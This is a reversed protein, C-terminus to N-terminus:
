CGGGLAAPVPLGEAAKNRATHLLLDTDGIGAWGLMYGLLSTRGPVGTCFGDGRARELVRAQYEYARDWLGPDGLLRAAALLSQVVGGSGHCVSLDVPGEEPLRVAADAAGAPWRGPPGERGASSLIEASALLLGAAGGCWGAARPGGAAGERAAGATRAALWDASARVLAADGLVRGARSLAWRLGLEGHALDWWPRGRPVELSQEVLEALVPLWAGGHAAPTGDAEARALLVMLPGAPGSVLDAGRVTGDGAPAGAGAAARAAVAALLEELWDPDTRGDRTLLLSATGSFVSPADQALTEGYVALLSDLGRGASRHAERLGRDYRAARGLFAVTGGTDRFSVFNGPALTPAAGGPGVGGLWGTEPGDPGGATVGLDRILRAVTRWWDGPAARALSRGGFVSHTSLGAPEHEGTLEGFTEELLFRHHLDARAASIAIGSRAFDLPSGNVAALRRRGAAGIERSDGRATFYPVNGAALSEREADAVRDAAEAPLYAPLGSLLGLLRGAEAPGTLYDPHTSADIFRTYVMTSRILCRVSLAAHAELVPVIDPSRVFALADTYGAVLEEYHATASLPEGGLRPLNAGHRCTGTEWAVSIADSRPERLVPRRLGSRQEGPVGVGAMLVDVPGAPNTVPVLMTTAVSHQFERVLARPLGGGREGTEPRLVTETDIVCPHEGHALLNEHHLDCSGIAGFVACLAGFRYYYRSAQEPTRVQLRPVFAQWGHGDRSLSAPVCRELSHALHPRAAAYLERVLDDSALERPKHVLRTGDALLVGVVQRYGNHLDSGSGSVATLRTAAPDAGALGAARLRALDEDYHTLVEAYAALSGRVFRDLRERLVPHRALIRGCEAPDELRHGFRRLAEDGAASAPLGRSARFTHFERILTRFSQAEVAAVLEGAVEGLLADLREPVAVRAAPVRLASEVARRPVAYRYFPLFAPVSVNPHESL